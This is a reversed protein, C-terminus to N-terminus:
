EIPIGTPAKKFTLHYLEHLALAAFLIFIWYVFSPVSIKLTFFILIIFQLATTAKGWRIARFQCSQWKNFLTLYVGFLCLAFDRALMLVAQWPRLQSEFLLVGIAICVFLKDMTPDLIAGFQTASRRRRALFGDLADTGMALLIALLRLFTSDSIFLLALPARLLSLANSLSFM